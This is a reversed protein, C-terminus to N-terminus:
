AKFVGNNDFKRLGKFSTIHHVKVPRVILIAPPAARRLNAQTILFCLAPSHRQHRHCPIEGGSRRPRKFYLSGVRNTSAADSFHYLFTTLKENKLRKFYSDNIFHTRNEKRKKASRKKAPQMASLLKLLISTTAIESSVVM